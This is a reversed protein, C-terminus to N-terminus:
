CGTIQLDGVHATMILALSKVGDISVLWYLFHDGVVSSIAGTETKLYFILALQFMLPADTFGHM